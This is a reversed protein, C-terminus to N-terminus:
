QAARQSKTCRAKKRCKKHLAMKNFHDVDYGDESIGLTKMDDDTIEGDEVRQILSWDKTLRRKVLRKYILGQDFCDNYMTRWFDAPDVFENGKWDTAPTLLRGHADRTEKIGKLHTVSPKEWYETIMRTEGTQMDVIHREAMDVKSM